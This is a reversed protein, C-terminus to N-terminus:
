REKWHHQQIYLIEEDSYGKTLLKNTEEIWEGKNITKINKLKSIYFEPLKYDIKDLLMIDIELSNCLLLLSTNNEILSNILKIKTKEEITIFM